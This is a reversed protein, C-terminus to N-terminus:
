LVWPPYDFLGPLKAKYVCMDGMLTTLSTSDQVLVSNDSFMFRFVKRPFTMNKGYRVSVDLM